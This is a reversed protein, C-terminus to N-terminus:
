RRRRFNARRAGEIATLNRCGTQFGLECAREFAASTGGSGAERPGRSAGSMDRESYPRIRQVGLGIGADCFSAQMDVLYPCAHPRQERCAQQWFPLWQGPHSDGVGQAASMVVFVVAWISMYALHRQRPALSRGLARRISGRSRVELAGRSRDGQDVPEAAAGAAAQRLVDPM